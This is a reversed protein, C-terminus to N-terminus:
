HIEAGVEVAACLRRALEPDLIDTPGIWRAQGGLGERTARRSGASRGGTARGAVRELWGAATVPGTSTSALLEQLVAPPAIIKHPHLARVDSAPRGEGDIATSTYGDGLFSFLALRTALTVAPGALYAIDGARAPPYAREERLREIVEGQTLRVMEPEGRDGPHYHGAAPAGVEAGRALARFSQAREPTDLTGGLDMVKDWHLAGSATSRDDFLILEDGTTARGNGVGLKPLVSASAFTIRPRLERLLRGLPEAPLRHDLGVSEAGLGIAALDAVLWEPRLESIVAVRDGSGLGLQERLYLALRIVQRDLRWDPVPEWGTGQWRLLAGTRAHERMARLYLQNLTPPLTASPQVERDRIEVFLSDFYGLLLASELLLNM